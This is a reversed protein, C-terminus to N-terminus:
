SIAINSVITTKGILPAPKQDDNMSEDANQSLDKTGRGVSSDTGDM